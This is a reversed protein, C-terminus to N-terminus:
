KLIFTDPNESSVAKIIRRARDLAEIADSQTLHSIGGYDAIERLQYLKSYDSGLSESWRGANVLNKHVASEISSHKKFYIGKLAFLASVAYFAAYYARNVASEPHL